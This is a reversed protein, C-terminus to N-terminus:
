LKKMGLLKCMKDLISSMFNPSQNNLLRAPAGYISGFGQYLFKDVTKTTQNPTVYAMIHKTFHDQFVLVNTVWPLRNLELTTFDVHLLDMPTTAVIPTLPVKALHGEHQLCCTCSMISQWMQNTMGPWWFCEWLLSLTHDHGQHGVDQHCGNLTTVHHARPVVFLVLDETEGKPISCLYLAGQHIMFNQWNWLTLRGEESSAHEALLAKLYTKKQAKLWDLVTSLMLDEKQAESWVTVHLQVLACGITVSLEQELDHNIEVIVPDHAKAWHVTGM